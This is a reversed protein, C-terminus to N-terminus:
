DEGRSSIHYFYNRRVYTCVCVRVLKEKEKWSLILLHWALCSLVSLCVSVCSRSCILRAFPMVLQMCPFPFSVVRSSNTKMDRELFFTLPLKPIAKWNSKAIAQKYRLSIASFIGRIDIVIEINGLLQIRLGMWMPFVPLLLKIVRTHFFLSFSVETARTWISFPLSLFCFLLISFFWASIM